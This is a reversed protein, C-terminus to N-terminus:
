RGLTTSKEQMCDRCWRVLCCKCMFWGSLPSAGNQTNCRTRATRRGCINWRWGCVNRGTPYDRRGFPDGLPIPSVSVRTELGSEVMWWGVFGQLAGLAFLLLMRPWDQRKIAGSWAFWVFPVFFAVGLLRGLLRHAWEWWFIAKFGALTMGANELRYQPILKYQAFAHQWAADNMPPLAGMIPDWQTISLGSGTLRTLGGVAVMALIVAAVLLLWIGVARPNSQLEIAVPARMAPSANSPPM